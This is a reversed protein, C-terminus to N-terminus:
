TKEGSSYILINRKCSLFEERRIGFALLKVSSKRMISETCSEILVSFSRVFLTTGTNPVIRDLEPFERLRDTESILEYGFSMARSPNDCAIFTVIDHLDDRAAPSWTLKYAM